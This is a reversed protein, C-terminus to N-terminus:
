VVKTLASVVTLLWAEDDAHDLIIALEHIEGEIGAMAAARERGVIVMAGDVDKLGTRLVGRVRLLESTLEGSRDQM